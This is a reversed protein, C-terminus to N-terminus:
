NLIIILEFIIFLSNTYLKRTKKDKMQLNDEPPLAMALALM